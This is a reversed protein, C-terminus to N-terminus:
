FLMALTKGALIPPNKGFVKLERKLDSALSLVSTIQWSTLDTVSLFHKTM